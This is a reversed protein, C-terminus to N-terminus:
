ACEAHYVVLEEFIKLKAHEHPLLACAHPLLRLFQKGPRRHGHELRWLHIRTCGLLDALREQSLGTRIRISHLFPGFESMSVAVESM